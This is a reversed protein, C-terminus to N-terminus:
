SSFISFFRGMVELPTDHGLTTAIEPVTLSSPPMAMGLGDPEEVIIPETMATPDSDLWDQTLESGTMKKFTDKSFTKNELLQAWRRPDSSDAGSHLNVYDRVPRNRASKRTPLKFTITRKSDAARCQGCFRIVLCRHLVNV